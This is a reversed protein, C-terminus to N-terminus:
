FLNKHSAVAQGFHCATFSVKKAGQTSHKQLNMHITFPPQLIQTQPHFGLAHGNAHFSYQNLPVETTSVKSQQEVYNFACTRFELM